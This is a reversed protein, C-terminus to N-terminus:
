SSREPTRPVIPELYMTKLNVLNALDTVVTLRPLGHAPLSADGAGLRELAARKGEGTALLISVDTAAALVRHTLTIRDKPPKPSDAIHAALAGEPPAAHGPFLSAIHGDEGMGLLAIDIGGECSEVAVDFQQLRVFTLVEFLGDAHAVGNEKGVLM